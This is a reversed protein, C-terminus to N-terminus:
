RGAEREATARPEAAAQRHIGTHPEPQRDPAAPMSAERTGLLRAALDDYAGAAQLRYQCTGCSQDACDGCNAARDRKNDAAEDLASLILWKDGASVGAANATGPEPTGGRSEALHSAPTRDSETGPQGASDYSAAAQGAPRDPPGASPEAARTIAAAHEADDMGLTGGYYAHLGHQADAWERYWLRVQIEDAGTAAAVQAWSAGAKVANHVLAPHRYHRALMEGAALVELHEGTTLPPYKGLHSHRHPDYTGRAQLVAIASATLDRSTLEEFREQADTTSRYCSQAQEYTTAPLPAAPERAQERTMEEDDRSTM